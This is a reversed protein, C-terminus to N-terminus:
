IEWQGQKEGQGGASVERGTLLGLDGLGDGNGAINVASKDRDGLGYDCTKAWAGRCCLVHIRQQDMRGNDRRAGRQFARWDAGRWDGRCGCCGVSGGTRCAGTELLRASCRSRGRRTQPTPPLPLDLPLTQAMNM